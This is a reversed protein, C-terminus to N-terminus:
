KNMCAYAGWYKKRTNATRVPNRGGICSLGVTHSAITRDCRMRTAIHKFFVTRVGYDAVIKKRIHEATTPEQLNPLTHSTCVTMYEKVKDLLASNYAKIKDIMDKHTSSKPVYSIAEYTKLQLKALNAHAGRCKEIAM